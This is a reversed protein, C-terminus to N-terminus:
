DSIQLPLHRYLFVLQLLLGLGTCILGLIGFLKKKGPRFLSVVGMTFAALYGFESALFLYVVAKRMLNENQISESAYYVALLIVTLIGVSSLLALGFAAIALRPHRTSPEAAHAFGFNSSFQNATVDDFACGPM